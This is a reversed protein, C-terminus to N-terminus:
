SHGTILYYAHSYRWRVFSGLIPALWMKAPIREVPFGMGEKFVALEPKTPTEPGYVVERIEGSRRCAQALEFVLGNGISTRLADSAVHVHEIYATEDVAYASVYARLRGDILGALAFRRGPEIFNSGVQERYAAKSVPRKGQRARATAYVEYGQDRLLESDRLEVFRALKQAKRIHFRRKSRFSELTYNELDALLHVPIAANAAGHDAEALSARFGWRLRKPCVAQEASLRAMWHVPEYFGVRTMKWVRGRHRMVQLGQSRWWDGAEEETMPRLTPETIEQTSVDKM